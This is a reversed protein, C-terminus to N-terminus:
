VTCLRFLRTITNVRVGKRLDERRPARCICVSVCFTGDDYRGALLPYRDLRVVVPDDPGRKWSFKVGHQPNVGCSFWQLLRSTSTRRAKKTTRGARSQHLHFALATLLLVSEPLLQATRGGSTPVLMSAWLRM